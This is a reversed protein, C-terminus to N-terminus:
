LFEALFELVIYLIDKIIIEGAMGLVQFMCSKIWTLM